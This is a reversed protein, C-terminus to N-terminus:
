SNRNGFTKRRPTPICVEASERFQGVEYVASSAAIDFTAMQDRETCLTIM